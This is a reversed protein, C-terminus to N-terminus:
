ELIAVVKDPDSPAKEPDGGLELSLEFVRWIFQMAAVNMLQPLELAKAAIHLCRSHYAEGNAYSETTGGGVVLVRLLKDKLDALDTTAEAGQKQALEFHHQAAGFANAVKTGASRPAIANFHIFPGPSIWGPM